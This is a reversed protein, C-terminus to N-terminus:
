LVHLLRRRKRHMHHMHCNGSASSFLLRWRVVIFVSSVFVARPDQMISVRGGDWDLTSVEALLYVTM